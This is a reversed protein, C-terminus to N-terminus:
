RTWVQARGTHKQYAGANALGGMELFFKYGDETGWKFEKLYNFSSVPGPRPQDMFGFFGYNQALFLAGNHHADDGHFWDSVPAQPSIAKVAPHNDIGAM